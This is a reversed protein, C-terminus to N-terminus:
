MWADCNGESRNLGFRFARLKKQLSCQCHEGKRASRLLGGTLLTGKLWRQVLLFVAQNPPACLQLEATGEQLKLLFLHCSSILSSLVAAINTYAQM